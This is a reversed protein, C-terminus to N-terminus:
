FTTYLLTSILHLLWLAVAVVWHPQPINCLYLVFLSPQTGKFGLPPRAWPTGFPPSKCVEDIRIDCACASACCYFVASQM